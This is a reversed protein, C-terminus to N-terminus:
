FRVDLPLRLVTAHSVSALKGLVTHTAAYQGWIQYFHTKIKRKGSQELPLVLLGASLWFSSVGAISPNWCNILNYLLLSLHFTFILSLTLDNAQCVRM